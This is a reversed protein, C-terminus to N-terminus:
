SWRRRRSPRRRVRAPRTRSKSTWRKGGSAEYIAIAFGLIVSIPGGVGGGVGFLWYLAAEPSGPQEGNAAAISVIGVIFAFIGAGILTGAM